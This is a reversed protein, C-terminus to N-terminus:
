KALDTVLADAFLGDGESKGDVVKILDIRRALELTVPCCSFLGHVSVQDSGKAYTFGSWGSSARGAMVHAYNSATYCTPTAGTTTGSAAISPASERGSADLATVTWSYATNAALGTDTYRTDSVPNVTIRHGGRYVHYGAAGAVANWGLVMSDATAGSAALGTPVPGRSALRDVM